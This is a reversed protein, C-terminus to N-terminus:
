KIIKEKKRKDLWSYLKMFVLMILAFILSVIVYGILVSILMLFGRGFGNTSSTIDVFLAKTDSFNFVSQSGLKILFFIGAFKFANKLIRNSQM